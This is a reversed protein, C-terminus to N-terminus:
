IIITTTNHRCLVCVICNSLSSRSSLSLSYPESIRQTRRGATRSHQHHAISTSCLLREAPSPPASARTSRHLLCNNTAPSSLTAGASQFHLELKAAAAAATAVAAGSVSIFFFFSFSGFLSLSVLLLSLSIPSFSSSHWTCLPTLDFHPSVAEM